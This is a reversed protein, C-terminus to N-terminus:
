QIICRPTESFTSEHITTPFNQQKYTQRNILRLIDCLPYSKLCVFMCVIFVSVSACQSGRFLSFEGNMFREPALKFLQAALVACRMTVFQITVGASITWRIVLFLKSKPKQIPNPNDTNLMTHNTTYQVSKSQTLVFSDCPCRYCWSHGDTLFESQKRSMCPRGM